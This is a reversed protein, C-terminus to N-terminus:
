EHGSSSVIWGSPVISKFLVKFGFRHLLELVTQQDYKTEDMIAKVTKEKMGLICEHMDNLKTDTFGVVPAPGKEKETKNLVQSTVSSAEPFAVSDRYYPLALSPASVDKKRESLSRASNREAKETPFSLKKRKHSNFLKIIGRASDLSKFGKMKKRLDKIDEFHRECVNNYLVNPGLGKFEEEDLTHYFKLNARFGDVVDRAKEDLDLQKLKTLFQERVEKTEAVAAHFIFETVNSFLEVKKQSIEKLIKRNLLKDRVGSILHFVCGQIVACPYIREISKLLERALDTVIIQPLYGLSRLKRLIPEITAADEREVIEWVLPIRSTVDVIYVYVHDRGCIKLISTDIGMIFRLDGLGEKKLSADWNPCKKGEERIRRQLTTRSIKLTRTKLVSNLSRMDFLYAEVTDPPLESTKARKESFRRGCSKCLFIPV